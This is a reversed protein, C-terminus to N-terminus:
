FGKYPDKFGNPDDPHTLMYDIKRDMKRQERGTDYDLQKWGYPDRDSEPASGGYRGREYDNMTM